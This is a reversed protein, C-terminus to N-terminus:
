FFPLALPNSLYLTAALIKDSKRAQASLMIIKKQLTAGRREMGADRGATWQLDRKYLPISLEHIWRM